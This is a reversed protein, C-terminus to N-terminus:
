LYERLGKEEMLDVLKKIDQDREMPCILLADGSDVVLMNELGIAAVLRKSSFLMSNSTDLQLVNGIILNEKKEKSLLEYVSSWSGVDSWGFNVPIVLVDSAKEAVGYDISLSQLGRYVEPIVDAIDGEEIAKELRLMGQYLDPIHRKILKYATELTLIFIGSNWLHKGGSLFKKARKPDPKEVFRVTRYAEFEKQVCTRDGMEIYGYGTEPRAPEVGLTVLYEGLRAVEEAAALAERFNEADRVYHDAPLLAIVGDRDMRRAMVAGLAMCAATNKGEPEVLINEVPIDPLEKIVDQYHDKGSIVLTCQRNVLPPLRDATQRLLTKDGLIKLLQKPKKNRSLPWFRRGAGGAMIVAYM